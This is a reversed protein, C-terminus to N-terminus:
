LREEILKAAHHMDLSKDLAHKNKVTKNKHYRNYLRM